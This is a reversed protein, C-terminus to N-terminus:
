VDANGRLLDAALCCPKESLCLCLLSHGQVNHLTMMIFSSSCSPNKKRPLSRGRSYPQFIISASHLIFPKPNLTFFLPNLILLSDLFYILFQSNHITFKLTCNINSLKINVNSYVFSCFSFIFTVLSDHM